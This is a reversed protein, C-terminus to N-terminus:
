YIKHKKTMSMFDPLVKGELGITISVGDLLGM